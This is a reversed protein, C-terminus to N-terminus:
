WDTVTIQAPLGTLGLPEVVPPPASACGVAVGIVFLGACFRSFIMVVELVRNKSHTLRVRRLLCDALDINLLPAGARLLFPARRSFGSTRHRRPSPSTRRSAAFFGSDSQRFSRGDRRPGCSAASKATKMRSASGDM